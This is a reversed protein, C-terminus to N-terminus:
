HTGWCRLHMEPVHSRVAHSARPAHTPHLSYEVAMSMHDRPHMMASSSVFCTSNLSCPSIACSCLIKPSSPVGLSSFQGPTLPSLTM